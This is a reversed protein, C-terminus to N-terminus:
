NEKRLAKSFRKTIERPRTIASGVVVAHAGLEMAKVAEERTWIRGEAIVPVEVSKVLKELLEFDPTDLKISYPTYGSMTTSVIDFGLEYARVGEEFTSIDAMLLLNEYKERIQKIFAELTLGNPRIRNTADLAIIEAKAEVLEDIEKMTPTIYIDSDKYDRKVIGLVPLDVTKKIEVIDKYSNARIAIAEGEKAAFAMRAMIASSHLPEDELAQCSVILGGKLAKIISNVKVEGL